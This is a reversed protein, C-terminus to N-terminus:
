EGSWARINDRLIQLLMTAESQGDSLDTFAVSCEDYTAQALSLPDEHNHMAENLFVTYNLVLGLYGPSAPKIGPDDRAVALAAEYCRRAAGLADDQTPGTLAECLYRYYDARLKEFFIKGDADAVALLIKETILTIFEDCIAALESAIQKRIAIIQDIRQASAQGEDHKEIASLVRLGNRRSSVLNKYSVALLNREDVSLVPNLAVVRKMLDAMDECRDTQDLVQAMFLAVDRESAM